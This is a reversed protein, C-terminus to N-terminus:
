TTGRAADIAERLTSARIEDKGTLFLDNINAESMHTLYIHGNATELFDLREKDKVLEGSKAEHYADMYRQIIPLTVDFNFPSMGLEDACKRAQESPEATTEPTPTM